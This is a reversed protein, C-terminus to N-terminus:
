VKEVSARVGWVYPSMGPNHKTRSHGLHVGAALMAAMEPDAAPEASPQEQLAIDEM